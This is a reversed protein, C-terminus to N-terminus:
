KWASGDWKEVKLGGSAYKPGIRYYGTKNQNTIYVYGEAVNNTTGNPNFILPNQGITDGGTPNKYLIDGAYEKDFDIDKVTAGTGNLIQYGSATFNISWPRNEKVAGLKAWQMNSFIDTSAGKLRYTTM